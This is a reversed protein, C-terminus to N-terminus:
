RLPVGPVGRGCDQASCRLPRRSLERRPSRRRASSAWAMTTLSGYCVSFLLPLLKATVPSSCARERSARSPEVLPERRVADAAIRAAM